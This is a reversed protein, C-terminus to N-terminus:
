FEVSNFTLNFFFFCLALKLSIYHLVLEGIKWSYSPSFLNIKLSIIIRDAKYYVLVSLQIINTSAWQLLLGRISMDGLEFMNSKNRAMLRHEKEKISRADPSSGVNAALVSVMVGVILNNKTIDFRVQSCIDIIQCTQLNHWKKQFGYLSQHLNGRETNMAFSYIALLHM